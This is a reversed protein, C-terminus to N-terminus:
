GARGRRSLRGESRSRQAPSADRELEELWQRYHGHRPWDTGAACGPDDLHRCNRFRCPDGALRRRLEPFLAALAAPDAPLEPRNFGPTDALLAGSALPFLEVHRTTHRGRRLRGSVPAVRLALAPCLANLLSSKGAGSPGCLVAIGGAEGDPGPSALRRSLADLGAGSRSSVPLPEYGWGLLEECWAALSAAEVRDAKSLVLEVAAGCAEASLLFRSLQPPDLTPEVLSAVVVVRAVNAVPPRSLLNRRPAVAAVAARGSAPDIGELRVRDGVWVQLGAHDLRSRRTCLLPAPPPGQPAGPTASPAPPSDEPGAAAARAPAGAGASGSAPAVEAGSADPAVLGAASGDPVVACFNAQLAVVRGWVEAM